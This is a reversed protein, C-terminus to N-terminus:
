RSSPRSWLWIAVGETPEFLRKVGRNIRRDVACRERQVQQRGYRRLFGTVDPARQVVREVEVGQQGDADAVREVGVLAALRERFGFGVQDGRRATLVHELDGV